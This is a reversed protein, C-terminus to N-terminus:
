ETRIFSPLRRGSLSFSTKSNSIPGLEVEHAKQDRESQLSTMKLNLERISDEYHEMQLLSVFASDCVFQDATVVFRFLFASLHIGPTFYFNSLDDCNSPCSFCNCSLLSSRSRVRSQAARAGHVLQSSTMQSNLNIGCSTSSTSKKLIVHLKM